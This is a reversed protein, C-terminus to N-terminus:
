RAHTQLTRCRVHNLKFNEILPTIAEARTRVKIKETTDAPGEFLDERLGFNATCDLGKGTRNWIVLAYTGPVFVPTNITNSYDCPWPARVLCEETLSLPVFWAYDSEPFNFVPRDRRPTVRPNPAFVVGQGPPADFPLALNSPPPPLGPGPLATVPYASAHAPVRTAACIRECRADACRHRSRVRDARADVIDNRHLYSFVARSEEISGPIAFPNKGQHGLASGRM